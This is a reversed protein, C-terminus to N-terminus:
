YETLYKKTKSNSHGCAFWRAPRHMNIRWKDIVRVTRSSYECSLWSCPFFRQWYLDSSSSAPGRQGPTWLGSGVKTCGHVTWTSVQSCPIAQGTMELMLAGSEVTWPQERHIKQSGASAPRSVEPWRSDGASKWPAHFLESIKKIYTSGRKRSGIRVMSSRFHQETQFLCWIATLFCSFLELWCKVQSFNHRSLASFVSLM